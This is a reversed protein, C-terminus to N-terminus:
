DHMGLGDFIRDAYREIRATRTASQKAGAFHLLYGRQRGPTLAEFAERFRPDEDFRTLLEEPWPYEATSRRRVERGARAHEVAQAVYEALYTRAQEVDAMSRFELRRASQTHEGQERLVDHPDDLLAGQFFMLAAFEKFPQFIVINKGDSVYCPKRWKLQEDLGSELLLSRLEVLEERWHELEAVYADVEPSTRAHSRRANVTRADARGADHM